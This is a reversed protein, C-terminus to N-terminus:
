LMRIRPRGAAEILEKADEAERPYVAYGFALAVRVTENLAPDKCVVDAVARALRYVHDDPDDGPDPLLAAFDTESLRGLVDFERLHTRLAEATRLLVREARISDVRARLEPLNEVRCVLVAVGGSARAARAVEQDLRQRLYSENPLGTEDDFQRHQRTRAQFRANALGREVYSAYKSFVRLDEENFTGPHFGDAPVKDYVCLTGFVREGQRLPAALLSRLGTDHGPFEAELERV